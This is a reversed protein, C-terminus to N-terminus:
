KKVKRTSVYEQWVEDFGPDDLYEQPVENRASPLDKMLQALMEAEKESLKREDDSAPSSLVELRRIRDELTSIKENLADLRKPFLALDNFTLQSKQLTSALRPEPPEIQGAVVRAATGAEWGMVTDVQRLTSKGLGGRTNDAGTIKTQTTTSPGGMKAVDIQSWGNEAVWSSFAESLAERGDM